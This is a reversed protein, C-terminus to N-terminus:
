QIRDDEGCAGMMMLLLCCSVNVFKEEVENGVKVGFWIL